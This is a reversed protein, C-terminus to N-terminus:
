ARLCVCVYSMCGKMWSFVHICMLLMGCETSKIRRNRGLLNNNIKCLLSCALSLLRLCHPVTYKGEAIICRM